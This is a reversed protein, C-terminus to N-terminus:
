ADDSEAKKEDLQRRLRDIEGSSLTANEVFHALLDGAKGEYVLNLLSLNKDRVGEERSILARYHYVRADHEDVAYAVLGKAILRRILTKVTRMSVKRARTVSDVIEAATAMDKAWLVKMIPWEAETIGAKKRM